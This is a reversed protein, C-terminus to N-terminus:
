HVFKFYARVTEYSINENTEKDRLYFGNIYYDDIQSFSLDASIAQMFFDSPEHNNSDVWVMKKTWNITESITKISVVDRESLITYGGHPHYVNIRGESELCGKSDVEDLNMGIKENSMVTNGNVLTFMVVSDSVVAM